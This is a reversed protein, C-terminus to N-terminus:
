FNDFKWVLFYWMKHKHYIESKMSISERTYVRCHRPNVILFLKSICHSFGYSSFLTMLYEDCSDLWKGLNAAFESTYCAAYRPVSLRCIDFADETMGDRGKKGEQGMRRKVDSRGGTRVFRRHRSSKLFPLM